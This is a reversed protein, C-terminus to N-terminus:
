YKIVLAECFNDFRESYNGLTENMDKKTGQLDELSVYSFMEGEHVRHPGKSLKISIRESQIDDDTIFVSEIRMEKDSLNLLEELKEYTLCTLCKRKEKPM